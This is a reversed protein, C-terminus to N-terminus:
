QVVNKVLYVEPRNPYSKFGSDELLAWRSGYLSLAGIRQAVPGSSPWLHFKASVYHFSSVVCFNGLHPCFTRLLYFNIRVIIYCHITPLNETRIIIPISETSDYIIEM